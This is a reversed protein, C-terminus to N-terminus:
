VTNGKIGALEPTSVVLLRSYPSGVDDPVKCLTGGRDLFAIAADFDDVGKQGAEVDIEPEMDLVLLGTKACAEDTPHDVEFTDWFLFSVVSGVVKGKVVAFDPLTQLSERSYPGPVFDPSEEPKLASTKPTRDESLPLWGGVRPCTGHQNLCTSYIDCSVVPGYATEGNKGYDNGYSGAASEALRLETFTGVVAKDTYPWNGEVAHNAIVVFMEEGAQTVIMGDRTEM